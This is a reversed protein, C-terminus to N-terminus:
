KSVKGVCGALVMISFQQCSSERVKTIETREVHQGFGGYSTVQKPCINQPNEVDGWPQKVVGFQVERNESVHLVGTGRCHRRKKQGPQNLAVTRVM